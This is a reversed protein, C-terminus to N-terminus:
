VVVGPDFAKPEPAYDDIRTDPTASLCELIKDSVLDQALQPSGAVFTFTLDYDCSVCWRHDLPWWYEPTVRFEGAQLFGVLEDLSGRYLLPFEPTTVFAIESFRFFCEQGGTHRKLVNVLAECEYDELAGDAPGNLYRAWCGQELRNLFWRFTTQAQYPAGLLAAMESWRSRHDPSKERLALTYDILQACKPFGLIAEETPTLPNDVYSYNACFEHFIKTYTPFLDPLLHPVFNGKWATGENKQMPARGTEIWRFSHEDMCARMVFMTSRILNTQM